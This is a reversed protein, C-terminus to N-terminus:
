AAGEKPNDDLLPRGLGGKQDFAKQSEVSILDIVKKKINYFVPDNLSDRTRPRKIPVIIEEIIRGPMVGMIYLRDAVIIAEDVDHTIFLMTMKHEEWLKLMWEQMIFRTQADLSAFPEDMLLIEPRNIMIRAISVRQKMGGSLEHPYHKNYGSLGILNIYEEVLPMYEEKKKYKMKLGFAINEEVTLWGFLFHEQFVVGRDSGARQIIQNNWLAKGKTPMIFGAIINLITSKGCGSPGLLSVVENERIYISVDSLATTKIGKKRDEFIKWVNILQVKNNEMEEYAIM